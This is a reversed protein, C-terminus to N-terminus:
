RATLSFKVREINPIKFGRENVKWGDQFETKGKLYAKLHKQEFRAQERLVEGLEPNGQEVRKIEAYVEPTIVKGLFRRVYKPTM